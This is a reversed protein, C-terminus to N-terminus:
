WGMGGSPAAVSGGMRGGMRRADYNRASLNSSKYSKLPRTKYENALALTSLFKRKSQNQM